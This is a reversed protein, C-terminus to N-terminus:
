AATKIPVPRARRRWLGVAGLGAALMAWAPAEPVPSVPSASMMSLVTNENWLLHHEVTNYPTIQYDYSLKGTEILHGGSNWGEPDSGYEGLSFSLGSNPSFVFSDAGCHYYANSSAACAVYDMSGITLSSLEGIELVGDANQDFGTFSGAIQMDPLFVAAEKDYFGTYTFTWHASQAHALASGFLLATATFLHKM